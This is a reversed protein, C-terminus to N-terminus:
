VYNIITNQDIWKEILGELNAKNFEIKKSKDTFPALFWKANKFNDGLLVLIYKDTKRGRLYVDIRGWAGLINRGVPEFVLFSNRGFEYELLDIEYSGLQEETINKNNEITKLLGKDIYSKFWKKTKGLTEKVEKQWDSIIKQTDIEDISKTKNLEELKDKLGM